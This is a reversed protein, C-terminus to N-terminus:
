RSSATAPAARPEGLSVWLNPDSQSQRKVFRYGTDAWFLIDNTQNDLIYEGRDTKVTLVAHGNGNHDRVVTMLLAERPWGVQMLLKRKQLAYDECDGYGDDPYNWREAVGWHDMDTMPKITTNVAVNIRKLEAWARASIVVDRPVSPTTDCEPAYEICFEAWGIPPSTVAGVGVYPMLEQAQSVTTSAFLAVGFMMLVVGAAAGRKAGAVCNMHGRGKNHPGRKACLKQPAALRVSEIKLLVSVLSEGGQSPRNVHFAQLNDACTAHPPRNSQRLRLSASASLKIFPQSQGRGPARM